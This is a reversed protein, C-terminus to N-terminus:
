SLIVLNWLLNQTYFYGRYISDIKVPQWVQIGEAPEPCSFGTECLMSLRLALMIALNGM